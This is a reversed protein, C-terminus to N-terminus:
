DNITRRKDQLIEEKYLAGLRKQYFEYNRVFDNIFARFLASKNRMQAKFLTYEFFESLNKTVLFKYNASKIEKEEKKQM